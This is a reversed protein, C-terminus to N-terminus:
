TGGDGCGCTKVSYECVGSRTRTYHLDLNADRGCVAAEARLGESKEPGPHWLAPTGYPRPAPCPLPLSALLSFPAPLPLSCTFPSLLSDPNQPSLLSVCASARGCMCINTPIHTSLSLSILSLSPALSFSHQPPPFPSYILTCIHKLRSFFCGRIRIHVYTRVCIPGKNTEGDRPRQPRRPPPIHKTVRRRYIAVFRYLSNRTCGYIYVDMCDEQCQAVTM